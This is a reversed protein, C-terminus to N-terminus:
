LNKVQLRGDVELTDGQTTTALATLKYTIGDVGGSIRVQVLPSSLSPVGITLGTPAGTVTPSGTLADGTRLKSTFDFNYFRSESPQKVRTAM